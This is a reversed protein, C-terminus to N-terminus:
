RTGSHGGAEECACLPRMNIAAVCCCCYCCCGCVESSEAAAAAAAASVACREDMGRSSSGPHVRNMCFSCYGFIVNCFRIKSNAHLNCHLLIQQQAKSKM